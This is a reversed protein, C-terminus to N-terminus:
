DDNKQKTFCCGNFIIVVQHTYEDITAGLEAARRVRRPVAVSFGTALSDSRKFEVNEESHYVIASYNLVEVGNTSQL